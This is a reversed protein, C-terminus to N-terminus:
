DRPPASRGPGAGRECCRAAAAVVGVAPPPPRPPPLPGIVTRAQAECRSTSRGSNQVARFIEFADYGQELGRRFRQTVSATIHGERWRFLDLQPDRELLDGPEDRSPVADSIVQVIKRAFLREV